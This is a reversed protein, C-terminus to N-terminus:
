GKFNARLILILHAVLLLPAILMPQHEAILRIRDPLYVRSQPRFLDRLLQKFSAKRLSSGSATMLHHAYLVLDTHVVPQVNKQKARLCFDEDSHYQVLNRNFGKITEFLASSFTMGRGPLVDSEISISTPTYNSMSASHRIRKLGFFKLKVGSFLVRHPEEFTVSIPAFIYHEGAHRIHELTKQLFDPAVRSDDNIIQIDTCGQEIASQAGEDACRTFWWLGNGNLFQIPYTFQKALNATDDTSGDNVIIILPKEALQEAQSTLELLLERLHEFRNYTPIVIGLKVTHTKTDSV